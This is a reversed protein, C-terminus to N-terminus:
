NRGSCFRSTRGCRTTRSTSDRSRNRINTSTRRKGAVATRSGGLTSYITGQQQIDPGRPERYRVPVSHSPQEPHVAGSEPRVVGSRGHLLAHDQGPGRSYGAAVSSRRAPQISEGRRRSHRRPHERPHQLDAAAVAARSQAL